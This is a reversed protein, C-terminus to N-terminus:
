GPRERRMVCASAMVIRSSFLVFAAVRVMGEELIGHEITEIRDAVAAGTAAARHLGIAAACGHQGRRSEDGSDIGQLAVAATKADFGTGKPCDSQVTLRDRDVFLDAQAAADADILTVTFGDGELAIERLTFRQQDPLQDLLAM